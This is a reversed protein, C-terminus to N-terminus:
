EPPDLLRRLGTPKTLEATTASGLVIGSTIQSGSQCTAAVHSFENAASQENRFAFDQAVTTTRGEPTTVTATYTRNEIDVILRVRYVVGPQYNLTESSQYSGGNRADFAGSPALRIAVALDAYGSAENTSLGTVADMSATGPRMNFSIAFNESQTEIDRNQWGAGGSLSMFDTAPATEFAARLLWGANGNDFSVQWWEDDDVLEPGALISALQNLATIGVLAAQSSPDLRLDAVAVTAIRSGSPFEPPGGSGLGHYPKVVDEWLSRNYIFGFRAGSTPYDILGQSKGKAYGIYGKEAKYWLDTNGVDMLTVAQNALPTGAPWYGGVILTLHNTMHPRSGDIAYRISSRAGKADVGNFEKLMGIAGPNPLEAAGSVIKGAGDIGNGGNIGAIVAKSFTDQALRFYIGLFEAISDGYCRYNNVAQEIMAASPAGSSPNNEKWTFTELMNPLNAAALEAVFDSHDYSELFASTATPGFYVTSVIVGGLMGERYNPNWNRSLNSDGDLTYQQNGAKIFPNEDSTTFACGILTAKMILDIRAQESDSLQDWIRPTHRVIAFMGTVHREHQAPYGGNSTPEKGPTLTHRIQELLRADASTNGAHSAVALTVSAGGYLAGNTHAGGSFDRDYSIFNTAIAADVAAQSPSRLSAASAQFSSVLLSAFLWHCTKKM